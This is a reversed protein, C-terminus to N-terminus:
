DISFQLRPTDDCSNGSCCYVHRVELISCLISLKTVTSGSTSQAINLPMGARSSNLKMFSSEEMALNEFEFLFICDTIHLRVAVRFVVEPVFCRGSM